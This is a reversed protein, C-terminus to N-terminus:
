ENILKKLTLKQSCHKCKIAGPFVLFHKTKQQKQPIRFLVNSQFSDFTKLM